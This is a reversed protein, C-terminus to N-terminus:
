RLHPADGDLYEKEFADFFPKKPPVKPKPKRPPKKSIKLPNELEDQPVGETAANREWEAREEPSLKRGWIDYTPASPTKCNGLNPDNLFDDGKYKKKSKPRKWRKPRTKMDYRHKKNPDGLTEFAEACKKFEEASEPNGPNKDPHHQLAKQRYAKVIDEHTANRAVGLIEYYDM